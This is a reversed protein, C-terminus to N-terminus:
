ARPEEDAEACVHRYPYGPLFHAWETPTLERGAAACASAIWDAASLDHAAVSGTSTM